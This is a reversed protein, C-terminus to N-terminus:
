ELADGLTVRKLFNIKCFIAIMDILVKIGLNNCVSTFELLTEQAVNASKKSYFLPVRLFVQDSDVQLLM